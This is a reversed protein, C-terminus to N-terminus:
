VDFELQSIGQSFFEYTATHQANTRLSLFFSKQNGSQAGSKGKSNWNNLGQFTAVSFETRGEGRSAARAKPKLPWLGFFRSWLLLHATVVCWAAVRADWLVSGFFSTPLLLKHTSWECTSVSCVVRSKSACFTLTIIRSESSSKNRTHIIHNLWLFHLLNLTAQFCFSNKAHNIFM